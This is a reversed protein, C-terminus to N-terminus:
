AHLVTTTKDTTNVKIKSVQDYHFFYALPTNLHHIYNTWSDVSLKSCWLSMSANVNDEELNFKYDYVYRKAVDFTENPM